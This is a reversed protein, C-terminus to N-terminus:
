FCCPESIFIETMRDVNLKKRGAITVAALVEKNNILSLMQSIM